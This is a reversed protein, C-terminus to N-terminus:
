QADPAEKPIPMWAVPNAVEEFDSGYRFWWAPAYCPPEGELPDGPDDYEGGWVVVHYGDEVHSLGEVHAAYPPLRGGEDEDSEAAEHSCLALIPTGDQPASGMSRWGQDERLRALEDREAVAEAYDSHLVYEGTEREMMGDHSEDYRKVM